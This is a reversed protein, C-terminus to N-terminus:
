SKQTTCLAVGEERQVILLWNPVPRGELIAASRQYLYVDCLLFRLLFSPASSPFSYSITVNCNFYLFSLMLLLRSLLRARLLFHLDTLTLSPIFPYILSVTLHRLTSYSSSSYLFSIFYAFQSSLPPHLLHPSALHISSSSNSPIPSHTHIWSTSGVSSGGKLWNCM